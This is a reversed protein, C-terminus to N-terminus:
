RQKNTQIHALAGILGNDSGLQALKLAPLQPFIRSVKAFESQLEPMSVRQNEMLGGGLVIVDPSWFMTLNHLGVALWRTVEQWVASDTIHEADQGLRYKLGSGSVYHELTGPVRCQPCASGDIDIIHQGPEFGYTTTDIKGHVIRAGGIGTSVTVYAVISSGQGAGAIAEALGALVADNHLQVPIDWTAHLTESVSHGVWEPLNPSTVLRGTPADIVGASAGGAATVAQGKGLQAVLRTIQAIGEEFRAPTPVTTQEDLKKGDRSVGVRLHTGGIDFVVYM